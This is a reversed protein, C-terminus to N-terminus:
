ALYLWLEPFTELALNWPRTGKPWPEEGLFLQARLESLSGGELEIRPKLLSLGIWDLDGKRLREGKVLPELVQRRSRFKLSRELSNMVQTRLLGLIDSEIRGWDQKRGKEIWGTLSWRGDQSSFSFPIWDEWFEQSEVEKRFPFRREPSTLSTPFPVQLSVSLFRLVWSEFAVSGWVQVWWSNSPQSDILFKAM